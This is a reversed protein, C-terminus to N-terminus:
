FSTAPHSALATLEGPFTRDRTLIVDFSGTARIAFERDAIRLWGLSRVHTSEHGIVEGVFRVPVNEDHLLRM